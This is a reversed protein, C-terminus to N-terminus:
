ATEELRGDSSKEETGVNYLFIIGIIHLVEVLLVLPFQRLVKLVPFIM